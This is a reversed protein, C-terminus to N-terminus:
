IFGLGFIFDIKEGACHIATVCLPNCAFVSPSWVRALPKGGDAIRQALASHVTAEVWRKGAWRERREGQGRFRAREEGAEQSADETNTGCREDADRRWTSHQSGTPRVTRVTQTGRTM